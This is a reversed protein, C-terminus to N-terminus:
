KAGTKLYDQTRKVICTKEHQIGVYTLAVKHCYPCSILTGFSGGRQYPVIALWALLLKRVTGVM